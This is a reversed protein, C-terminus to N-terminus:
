RHRWDRYKPLGEVLNDFMLWISWSHHYFAIPFIVAIPFLVWLMTDYEVGLILLAFFCVLLITVETIVVNALIAGVFFGEERKFLSGCSECHHRIHFPREVLSALGCVPCLLRAARNVTRKMDESVIQV